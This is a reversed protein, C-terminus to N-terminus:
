HAVPSLRRAKPPVNHFRELLEDRGAFPVEAGTKLEELVMPTVPPGAHGGESTLLKWLLELLPDETHGNIIGPEVAGGINALSGALFLIAQHLPTPVSQSLEAMAERRELESLILQPANSEGHALETVRVEFGSPTELWLEQLLDDEAYANRFFEQLTDGTAEFKTSLRIWWGSDDDRLTHVITGHLPEVRSTLLLRSGDPGHFFLLEEVSDDQLYTLYFGRPSPGSESPWSLLRQIIKEDEEAGGAISALALLIVVFTGSVINQCTKQSM